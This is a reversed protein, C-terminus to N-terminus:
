GFMDMITITVSYIYTTTAVTFALTLNNFFHTLKDKKIDQITTNDELETKVKFIDSNSKIQSVHCLLNEFRIELFYEFM